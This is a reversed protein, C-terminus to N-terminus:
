RLTEPAIMLPELPLLLTVAAGGERGNVAEVNGGLKRLTNIAFFLGLGRGPREKTSQYPRGLSKLIAPDFGPGEDQTRVKLTGGARSVDLGIRGPSVEFANDLINAIAQRLTSDLVIAIDGEVRRSYDLDVGPHREAWEEVLGDFFEAITTEQASEGRAEGASLLIGSVISKCRQVEAQMTEIEGLLGPTEKVFPMRRWDGLIIAVTSLPTGLEHAAGSALLGMRVIHDEEAARQRLDSLRADRERINAAVRTVFFVILGANIAFCIVLGVTQLTISSSVATELMDLPVHAVSLAVFCLVTTLFLIMTSRVDLMVAGLAVQLLYLFAFPNGAGGSLYLQMTLAGVDLLLSAFLEANRVPRDLRLRLLSLLNLAVLAVVVFAMWRWPLEAGFLLVVAAISAVQGAVAIWRLHVLLRLNRRGTPDDQSALFGGAAHERPGSM